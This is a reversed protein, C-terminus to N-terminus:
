QPSPLPYKLVLRDGQWLECQRPLARNIVYSVADEDTEAAMAESDVIHGADDLHFLRYAPM